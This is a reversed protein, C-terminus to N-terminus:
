RSKQAYQERLTRKLIKGAGSMPMESVFEFSRPAKYGAIHEKCFAALDEGTTTAGERLIVVAHVREGWTEDPVGIVAASLVDDHKSLATEVEASYVNEGGTVIMDKLRDVVYLYGDEDLYGGDGTHYWGDIMVAATEAPKNWYGLMINNGRVCIEGVEGRPVDEGAADVVRLECHVASRGAARLHVGSHDDPLLLCVVPAAETMGYAQMFRIGPLAKMTRKLVGESISSGGYMLNRLTSLDYTSFEPHDIFLQVMTPVLLTDTVGYAEIAKMLATPEFSPITVHTGGNLVQGAWAALDALHFMPATHLFVSNSTLAEGSAVTGMASTMMNLHSLMVGKPFGTTGGTYFIGMLDDKSRRVDPMPENNAILDEYGLLGEPAPGDGCHIVTALGPARERLAPVMATFADDVLLITTESDNLSYAVEAPSWRINIPNVACGAWPVAMLYEVYRDSNLSLIGIRDNEKAGVARFGAALRAVRDAHERFTRKRNGHITAVRDPHTQVARHLGQTMSM